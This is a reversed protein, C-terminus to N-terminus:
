GKDFVGFGVGRVVVDILDGVAVAKRINQKAGFDELAGAAERDVVKFNGPAILVSQYKITQQPPSILQSAAATLCTNSAKSVSRTVELM